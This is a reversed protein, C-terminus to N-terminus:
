FIHSKIARAIGLALVFPVGNGIGKFMNTLSITHDLKFSKPLTQIALAEAVNIRRAETPHIHVENNGYAATPSYRYRHLRKFSKKTDDGEAIVLFKELGKRPKFGHVRHFHNCVDNKDFWHQLTLEQPLEKLGNHSIEQKPMKMDRWGPFKMHSEWPFKELGIVGKRKLYTRKAGILIIRDRDQAAGFELSNVLRETLSYGANTLQFKLEEYFARHRKTRWLGKVNEFLFADPKYDCILDVYTQSLRGNEGTSGRNKGGVSFDPCPPGGIFISPASKVLKAIIRAENSDFDKRLQEISGLFYEPDINTKKSKRSSIYSQLFPKHVENVFRISFGAKEFGLDLFGLGSFFSIVNIEPVSKDIKM